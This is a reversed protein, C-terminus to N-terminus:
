ESLLFEVLQGSRNLYFIVEKNDFLKAPVPGFVKIWGNDLFSKLKELSEIQYCLHNLHNGFKQLSNFSTSKQGLPHILEIFTEGFNEYLALRSNQISDDVENVKKSYLMKKEYDEISNVVIGIHHFKLEM